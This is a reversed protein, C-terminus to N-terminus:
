ASVTSPRTLIGTVTESYRVLKDTEEVLHARGQDTVSYYRAKRNNETVGWSPQVLGREVMRYLSQYIASDDFTLSGGSERELWSTIEFGHMPSWSLAKLVLLDVTGRVVPVPEAM